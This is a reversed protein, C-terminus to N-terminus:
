PRNDHRWLHQISRTSALPFTAGDAYQAWSTGSSNKFAIAGVADTGNIAYLADNLGFYSQIQQTGLYSSNINYKLDTFQGTSTSYAVPRNSGSGELGM